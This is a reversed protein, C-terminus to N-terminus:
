FTDRAALVAVQARLDGRHSQQLAPVVDLVGKRDDILEDAVDGLASYVSIGLVLIGTYFLWNFAVLLPFLIESGNEPFVFFSRCLVPTAAAFASVSIAILM